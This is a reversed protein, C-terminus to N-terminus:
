SSPNFLKELEARKQPNLRAECLKPVIEKDGFKESMALELFEEFTVPRPTIKEGADLKLDSVRRLGKAVFTYIAWDMKSVPQQGDWLIFREAEYGTEELLERKAADLVGEGEDIRGGPAALFPEKGPQEQEALLIKGDPLVPFVIVTDPRKVKEFTAMTGDYLKQEWQYVEFMVGKFVRKANKPM